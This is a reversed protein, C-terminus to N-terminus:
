TFFFFSKNIIHFYPFRLDHYLYIINSNMFDAKKNKKKNLGEQMIQIYKSLVQKSKINALSFMEMDTDMDKTDGPLIMKLKM